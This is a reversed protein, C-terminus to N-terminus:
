EDEAASSSTQMSSSSAVSEYMPNNEMELLNVQKDELDVGKRKSRRVIRDRKEQNIMKCDRNLLHYLRSLEPDIDGGGQAM